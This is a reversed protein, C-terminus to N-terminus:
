ATPSHGSPHNLQTSRFIQGLKSISSTPVCRGDPDTYPVDCSRWYDYTLKLLRFLEELEVPKVLYSNAGLSYALRIDDPDSSASLVISPTVARDPNARLDALIAFGDVGPMKLDTILFSPYPFRTRDCYVGEGRLYALAEAGSSVIQVPDAIGIRGFALELLVRDNPDDEVVLISQTSRKMAIPGPLSHELKGLNKTL